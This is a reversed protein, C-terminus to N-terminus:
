QEGKFVRDFFTACEDQWARKTDRCQVDPAESPLAVAAYEAWEAALTKM